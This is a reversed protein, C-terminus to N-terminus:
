NRMLPFLAFAIQGMLGIAGAPTALGDAFEAPSRGFASVALALEAGMLLTFSVVGMVARQGMQQPVHYRRLVAGCVWWSVVLIVPLEILVGGTEGIQPIVFFVRVAGLAFGVAFVIAFYITGAKLATQVRTGEAKACDGHCPKVRADLRGAHGETM